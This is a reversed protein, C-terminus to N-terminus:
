IFNATAVIYVTCGVPKFQHWHDKKKRGRRALNQEDTNASPCHKLSFLCLGTQQKTRGENERERERQKM